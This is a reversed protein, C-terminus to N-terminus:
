CLKRHHIAMESFFNKPGADGLGVPCLHLTPLTPDLNQYKSIHFYGSKPLNNWILQM